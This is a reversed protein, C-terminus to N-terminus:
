GEGGEDEAHEEEHEAEEEHPEEGGHIEEAEREILKGFAADSPVYVVTPEAKAGAADAIGEGIIYAVVAAGSMILACVQTITNEPVKFIVLIDTVFVSVALWFKRSTLKRVWDQKTM